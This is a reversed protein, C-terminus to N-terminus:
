DVVSMATSALGPPIAEASLADALLRLGQHATLGRITARDGSLALRRSRVVGAQQYAVAVHVEGVPHGDQPEPGAVGTVALGWDAACRAAIGVAMAGATSEAVPGDADLVPGPVGALTAKLGTAYTIAGGVYNASAGPVETILSGILGGTLSEATALTEGRKALRLVVERAIASTL